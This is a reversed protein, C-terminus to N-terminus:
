RPDGCQRPHRWLVAPNTFPQYFSTAVEVLNLESGHEHAHQGRGVKSLRDLGGHTRQAVGFGLLEVGESGPPWTIVIRDPSSGGRRRWWRRRVQEESVRVPMWGDGWAVVRKFM